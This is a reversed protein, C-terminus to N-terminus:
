PLDGSAFGAGRGPACSLTRDPGIIEDVRQDRPSEPLHSVLQEPHAYALRIARPAAALTADYYGGGYGLRAGSASFGIGPVVFADIEQLAVEPSDASPQPVGLPGQVLATLASVAHFSLRPPKKSVVRPYVPRIGRARLVPDALRPDLERERDISAYLAVTRAGVIARHALLREAAAESRTRVLSPALARLATQLRRRLAEKEVAVPAADSAIETM